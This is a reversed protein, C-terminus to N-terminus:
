RTVGSDLFGSGAPADNDYFTVVFSQTGAPAGIWELVPRENAGYCGFNNWYQADTIPRGQM